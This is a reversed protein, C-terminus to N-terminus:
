IPREPNDFTWTQIWEFATSGGAPSGYKAFAGQISACIRPGGRCQPPDGSPFTGAPVSPNSGAVPCGRV